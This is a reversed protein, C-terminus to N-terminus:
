ARFSLPTIYVVCIAGEGEALTVQGDTSSEDILILADDVPGAGIVCASRQVTSHGPIDTLPAYTGPAVNEFTASGEFIELGNPAGEAQSPYGTIAVQNGDVPVTCEASWNPGDYSEPCLLVDVTVTGATGPAPTEPGNATLYIRCSYDASVDLYFRVRNHYGDRDFREASGELDFCTWYITTTESLDEIALYYQGRQLDVFGARGEDGAQGSIVTGEDFIYGDNLTVGVPRTTPACDEAYQANDYGEPCDFIQVGVSANAPDAPITSGTSPSPSGMSGGPTIYYRCSYDRASDTELLGPPPDMNMTEVTITADFLFVESGSTVDFCALYVSWASRFVGAGVVYPGPAMLDFRAYGADDTYADTLDDLDLNHLYVDGAEETGPQCDVLYDTGDYGPPCEWLQITVSSGGDDQASVASAMPVLSGVLLALGLLLRTPGFVRSCLANSM